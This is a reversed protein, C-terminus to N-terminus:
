NGRGESEGPDRKGIGNLSHSGTEQTHLSELVHSENAQKIGDFDELSKLTHKRYALVAGLPTEKSIIQKFVLGCDEHKNCYFFIGGYKNELIHNRIRLWQHAM